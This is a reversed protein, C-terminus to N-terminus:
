KDHLRKFVDLLKPDSKIKNMLDKMKTELFEDYDEKSKFGMKKWDM